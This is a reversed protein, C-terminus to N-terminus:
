VGELQGFIIKSLSSKKRNAANSHIVSKKVAKDLESMYESAVGKAESSGAKALAFVKKSLTKLKSRVVRNRATHSITQAISKHAAKKNAM